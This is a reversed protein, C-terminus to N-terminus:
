HIMNEIVLVVKMPIGIEILIDYLLEIRVSAHAKTLYQGVTSRNRRSYKILLLSTVSSDM